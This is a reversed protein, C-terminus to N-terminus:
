KKPDPTAQQVQDFVYRISVSRSDRGVTLHLTEYLQTADPSLEYTRSMKGGRPNKEDDTVLSKDNWHAAIQQNAADKSKELKRGDTFISLKRYQDDTVDVEADKQELTLKNAPAIFQQMKQQDEDSEGGRPRGGHGGLGGPFGGGLGGRNGGYGGNNSSSGRAQQMKERPDDSDDHNLKWAGL